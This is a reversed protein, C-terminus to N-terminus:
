NKIIKKVTKGKESLITAFYIGTKLESLDIQQNPNEINRVLKGTVDAIAISRINDESAVNILGNTPNPYLTVTTKSSEPTGLFVQTQQELITNNENVGLLPVSLVTNTSRFQPWRWELDTDYYHYITQTFTGVVGFPPYSLSLTQVTKFRVVEHPEEFAYTMLMGSQDVATTITGSFTGFYTDYLFTGAVADSNSYGLSLPFSGMVAPNTYTLTFEPTAAGTFSGGNNGMFAQSSQGNVVMTLVRDTGPFFNLEDATPTTLSYSSSGIETLNEFNWVITGSGAEYNLPAASNVIQYTRFNFGDAVGGQDTYIIGMYNQPVNQAFVASSALLLFLLTKKM